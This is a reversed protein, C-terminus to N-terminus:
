GGSTFILTQRYTPKKAPSYHREALSDVSTILSRNIPRYIIVAPSVECTFLMSRGVTISKKLRNKDPIACVQQVSEAYTVAILSPDIRGTKRLQDDLTSIARIHKGTTM